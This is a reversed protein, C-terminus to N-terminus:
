CPLAKACCMFDEMIRGSDGERSDEEALTKWKYRTKIKGLQEVDRTEGRHWRSHGAGTGKPM